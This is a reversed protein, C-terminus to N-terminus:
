KQPTCAFTAHAPLLLPCYQLFFDTDVREATTGAPCEKQAEAQAAAPPTRLGSYCIAVRPAAAQGPPAPQPVTAYPGCGALAAALGM